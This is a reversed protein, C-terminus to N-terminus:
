SPNIKRAKMENFTEIIEKNKEKFDPSNDIKLDLNEDRGDKNKRSFLFLIDGSSTDSFKCDIVDLTFQGMNTALILFGDTTYRAFKIIAKAEENATSKLNFLNLFKTILQM